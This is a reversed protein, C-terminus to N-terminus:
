IREWKPDIPEISLICNGGYHDFRVLFRRKYDHLDDGVTVVRKVVVIKVFPDPTNVTDLLSCACSGGEGAVEPHAIIQRLVEKGRREDNNGFIGYLSSGEPTVARLLGISFDRIGQFFTHIAGRPTDSCKKSEAEPPPISACSAVLMAVAMLLGLKSKGM